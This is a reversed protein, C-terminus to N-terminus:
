PGGVTKCMELMPGAEAPDTNQIECRYFHKKGPVLAVAFDYNKAANHFHFFKGTNPATDGSAVLKLDGGAMGAVGKARKDLDDPQEIWITPGHFTKPNRVQLSSSDGVKQAKDELKYDGTTKICVGTEANTAAGDACKASGKCAMLGSSAVLTLALALAMMMSKSM